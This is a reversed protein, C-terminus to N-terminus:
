FICITIKVVNELRIYTMLGKRFMNLHMWSAIM